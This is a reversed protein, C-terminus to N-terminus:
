FVYPFTREKKFFILCKNEQFCCNESFYSLYCIVGEILAAAKIMDNLIPPSAALLQCLKRVDGKITQENFTNKMQKM